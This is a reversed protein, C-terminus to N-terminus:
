KEITIYSEIKVDRKRWFYIWFNILPLNIYFVYKWITSTKTELGIAFAITGKWGISLNTMTNFKTIIIRM